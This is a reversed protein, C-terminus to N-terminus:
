GQADGVFAWLYEKLGKTSLARHDCLAGEKCFVETKSCEEERLQWSLIELKWRCITVAIQRCIVQLHTLLYFNSQKMLPWPQWIFSHDALGPLPSSSLPAKWLPYYQLFCSPLIFSCLFSPLFCPSSSPLLPPHILKQGLLSVWLSLSLESLLFCLEEIARELRWFVM